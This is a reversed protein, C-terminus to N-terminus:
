KKLLEENCKVTQLRPKYIKKECSIVEIYNQDHIHNLFDITSMM